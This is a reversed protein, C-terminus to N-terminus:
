ATGPHNKVEYGLTLQTGPYRTANLQDYLPALVRTRPLVQATVLIPAPDQIPSLNAVARVIM